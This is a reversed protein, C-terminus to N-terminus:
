RKLAGTKLLERYEEIKEQLEGSVSDPLELTNLYNFSPRNEGEQDVFMRSLGYAGDYKPNLSQIIIERRDEISPIAKVIELLDSFIFDPTNQGGVFLVTTVFDAAYRSRGEAAKVKVRAVAREPERKFWALMAGQLVLHNSGEVEEQQSLLWREAEEPDVALWRGLPERISLHEPFPDGSEGVQHIMRTLDAWEIQDSASTSFSEIVTNRIDGGEKESIYETLADLAAREAKRSFESFIVKATRARLESISFLGESYPDDYNSALDPFSQLWHHWAEKPKVQAFGEYIAEIRALLLEKPGSKFFDTPDSPDPDFKSLVLAHKFATQFDIEAWREFLLDDWMPVEHSWRRSIMKGIMEVEAPSWKSIRAFIEEHFSEPNEGDWEKVFQDLDAILQETTKKESRSSESKQTRDSHTAVVVSKDGETEHRVESGKQSRLALWGAIVLLSTAISILAM